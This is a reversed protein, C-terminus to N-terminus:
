WARYRLADLVMELPTGTFTLKNVRPRPNEGPDAPWNYYNNPIAEADLRAKVAHRYDRRIEAATRTAETKSTCYLRGFGDGADAQSYEVEYITM